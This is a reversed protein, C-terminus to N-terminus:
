SYRRVVTRRNQEDPFDIERHDLNGGGFIKM